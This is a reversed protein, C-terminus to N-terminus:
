AVPAPLPLSGNEIADLRRGFIQSLLSGLQVTRDAGASGFGYAFTTGTRLLYGGYPHVPGDLADHLSNTRYFEFLPPFNTSCVFGGESTIAPYIKIYPFTAYIWVGGALVFAQNRAANTYQAM